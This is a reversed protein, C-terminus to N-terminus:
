ASVHRLMDKALALTQPNIEIGGIMRAIEHVRQKNDLLRIETTTTDRATQKMVVYHYNGRAAVQGLHTVCLVQRKAGLEHLQQGVIEAVGGGIGVDVEDFILTPVTHRAATIVQLALSIRSLEGGSAVKTLPKIPQGPNASVMLEVQERGYLTFDDNKLPALEVAFRGGPMGLEALRATVAKALRAAAAGRAKSVRAAVEDYAALADKVAQALQAQNEDFHAIDGLETQLRVLVLPLENAHVHHKRALAHAAALRQDVWRLREPDLELADVYHRLQMAAEAVQVQADGVIRGIDTLKQDFQALTDLKTAAQSLVHAIAGDDAEYLQQVLEQAGQILEAGNSLRAYEEELQAFEDAGLNLAELEQTQYRLLDLRADRDAASRQLDHLRTQASKATHYHQALLGTDGEIDAFSDLIERQADRRLLSHHEHQGHIDVLLDGLERLQQMPVPRGNIFGKSAKDREVVRRLVCEGDEFLDQAALWQAGADERALDFRATVEARACGHRIVGSDAREGLALALADILISKGAGTEGTLVNFGSRFPVTMEGVIAFDRIYLETLM